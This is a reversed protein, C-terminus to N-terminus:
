RFGGVPGKSSTSVSFGRRGWFEARRERGLTGRFRDGVRRKLDGDGYRGSGALRWIRLPPFFLFFGGLPPPATDPFGGRGPRWSARFGLGLSTFLYYASVHELPPPM